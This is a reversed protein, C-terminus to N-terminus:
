RWYKINVTQGQSNKVELNLVAGGGADFHCIKIPHLGYEFALRVSKTAASHLGDNDIEVLGDVWLISGDDSTLSITYVGDFPIEMYGTLIQAYPGTVGEPLAPVDITSTQHTLEPNLASCRSISVPYLKRDLGPTQGSRQLGPIMQLHKVELERVDSRRGTSTVSVVRVTAMAGDMLPIRQSISPHCYADESPDTGDLTYQLCGGFHAAELQVVAEDALTQIPSFGIPDPIRYNVNFQDLMQYQPRVRRQFDAFDRQHEPSWVREALAMMRPFAMYEVHDATKMYETWMNAQAGMVHHRRSPDLSEPIPDYAYVKEIPSFGGIALPEKSPEAQYHDFYLAFGPSMVVNHGHSAAEIGGAEGRWSMVAANPALGGELIEDWGILLRDRNNLFKEIRRIFWSQLEDEDKLGERKMIAQAEDSERWRRKPVEDGGIHIYRSPFLNLVEDLVTELFEFTNETPCFVDEFVGWTTAVEFPGPTCAFEPYAALAALAHGPMEIEPVVTIHREAAYAVIERIEDQTYFGGHSIGDGIYPNFNKAVITEKRWAGIETLKPYAKIEIRWGQDETLHWHFTNMKFRSMLDIYKKVFEVSRFHRAVDLHMGRWGFRPYDEIRAHTLQPQQGASILQVFTQTGYFVGAPDGAITVGSDYADLTYYESKGTSPSIVLRVFASGPDNVISSEVGHILTLSEVLLEASPRLSHDAVYIGLNGRLMSTTGDSQVSVPMPVLAPSQPQAVCATTSVFFLIWSLLQRKM